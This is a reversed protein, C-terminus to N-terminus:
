FELKTDGFSMVPGEDSDAGLPSLDLDANLQEHADAYVNFSVIVQELVANVVRVYSPRMREANSDVIPRLEELTLMRNSLTDVDRGREELVQAYFSKNIISESSM